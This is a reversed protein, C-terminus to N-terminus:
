PAGEKAPRQDDMSLQSVALWVSGLLVLVVLGLLLPQIHGRGFLQGLKDGRNRGRSRLKKRIGPMLDPPPAGAFASSAAQLLDRFAEFEMRLEPNQELLTDFAARESGQLEGDYAASFLERAQQENM